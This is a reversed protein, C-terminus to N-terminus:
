IRVRLHMKANRGACWTLKTCLQAVAGEEVAGKSLGPPVNSPLASSAVALWFKLNSRYLTPANTANPKSLVAASDFLVSGSSPKSLKSQFTVMMHPFVYFTPMFIITQISVYMCAYMCAYMCVCAYVCAHM